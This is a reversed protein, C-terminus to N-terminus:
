QKVYEVILEKANLLYKKLAADVDRELKKFIEKPDWGRLVTHDPTSVALPTERFKITIRLRDLRPLDLEFLQQIFDPRYKAWPESIDIGSIIIEVSKVFSRSTASPLLMAKSILRGGGPVSGYFLADLGSREVFWDLRHMSPVTHPLSDQVERTEVFIFDNLGYYMPMMIAKFQKCTFMGRLRSRTIITYSRTHIPRKEGTVPHRHVVVLEFINNLIEPALDLLQIGSSKNSSMTSLAVKPGHHLIHFSATPFGHSTSSFHKGVVCRRSVLTVHARIFTATGRTVKRWESM